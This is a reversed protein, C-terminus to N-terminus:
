QGIAKLYSQYDDSGASTNTSAGTGDGTGLLANERNQILAKVNQIKQAAVEQTDYITPLNERIQDIAGQNGRFGQVGSISKLLDLASDNLATAATDQANTQLKSSVFGLGAGYLNRELASPATLGQFTSAITDLNLYANQINGLDAAGNATTIVKVGNKAALQALTNKEAGTVSSLDVYQTGNGSKQLYPVLQSSTVGSGGSGTGQSATTPATFVAQGTNPNFVTAGPSVTENPLPKSDNYLGQEFDLQAKTANTRATQAGTLSNLTNSLADTQFANNHAVRAAEGSAFGLTQGPKNLAYEQDQQAQLTQANLADQAKTIADSPQLSQLYTNFASEYQQQAPNVTKGTTTNTTVGNVTTQAPAFAGNGYGANANATGLSNNAPAASAQTNVYTQKPTTAAPNGGASSVSGSVTPQKVAGTSPTLTYPSPTGFQSSLTSPTSQSLTAKFIDSPNM